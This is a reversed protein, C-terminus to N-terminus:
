IACFSAHPQQKGSHVAKLEEAAKSSAAVDGSPKTPQNPGNVLRIMIGALLLAIITLVTKIHLDVKM